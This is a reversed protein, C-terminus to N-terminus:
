RLEEMRKLDLKWDHSDKEWRRGRILSMQNRIKNGVITKAMALRKETDMYYQYQSFRLFINRSAESSTHGLYKGSYSFYSVDVGNEMLMRLAQATVQVNGILAINDAQFVPIDLLTSRNRMVVIREGRKQVVAGQEKVYIAAM